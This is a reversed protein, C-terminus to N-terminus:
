RSLLVDTRLIRVASQCPTDLIDLTDPRNSRLRELTDADAGQLIEKLVVRATIQIPAINDRYSVQLQGFPFNRNDSPNSESVKHSTAAPTVPQNRYDSIARTRHLADPKLSRTVPM